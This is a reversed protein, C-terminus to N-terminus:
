RKKEITEKGSLQPMSSISQPVASTSAAKSFSVEPPNYAIATNDLKHQYPAQGQLSQELLTQADAAALPQAIFYGQLFDCGLDRLALYQEITEVGEAVVAMQLSHAIQLITKVLEYGEYGHFMNQVFSRDIKLANANLTQLYSLSSYGTGFDDIYLQVGLKRLQKLQSLVWESDQLLVSEIFEVNISQPAIHLNSIVKHLYGQLDGHALQQATM